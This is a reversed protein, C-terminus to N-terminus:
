LAYRQWRVDLDFLYSIPKFMVMEKYFSCNIDNCKDIINNNDDNGNDKM